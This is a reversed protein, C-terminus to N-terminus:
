GKEALTSAAPDGLGWQIWLLGEGVGVEQTLLQLVATIASWRGLLGPSECCIETEQYISQIKYPISIILINLHNCSCKLFCNEIVYCEVYPFYWLQLEFEYCSFNKNLLHYLSCLALFMLM